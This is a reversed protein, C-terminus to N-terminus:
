TKNPSSSVSVLSVGALIFIIGIWRQMSIHEHLFIMAAIAVLVYSFSAIPTAISLDIKSLITSWNTFIIIVTLLGLWLFPSSLINGIFTFIQSPQSINFSEQASAAKKFCM